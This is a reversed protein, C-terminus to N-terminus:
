TVNNLSDIKKKLEYIETRLEMENSMFCENQANQVIMFTKIATINQNMEAIAKGLEMSFKSIAEDPM